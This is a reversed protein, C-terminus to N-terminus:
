RRDLGCSSCTWARAAEIIVIIVMPILWFGGTLIIALIHAIASMAPKNHVTKRGCNRCRLLTTKM